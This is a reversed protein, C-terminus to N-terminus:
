DELGWGGGTSGVGAAAALVTGGEALVVVEGAEVMLEGFTAMM